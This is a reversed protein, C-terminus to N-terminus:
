LEQLNLYSAFHYFVGYFVANTYLLIEESINNKTEPVVCHVPTVAELKLPSAM